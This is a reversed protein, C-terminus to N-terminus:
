VHEGASRNECRSTEGKQGSTNRYGQIRGEALYSREIERRIRAASSQDDENSLPCQNRHRHVITPTPEPNRPDDRCLICRRPHQRIWGEVSNESIDLFTTRERRHELVETRPVQTRFAPVEDDLRALVLYTCVGRFTLSHLHNSNSSSLSWSESVHTRVDDSRGICTTTGKHDETCERDRRISRQKIRDPITPRRPATRYM